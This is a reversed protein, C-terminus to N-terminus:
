LAAAEPPKRENALRTLRLLDEAMDFHGLALAKQALASLAAEEDPESEESEALFFELDHGTAKAIAAVMEARPMHKGREYRSIDSAAPTLAGNTVRRAAFALDDQSMGKALRATRIKLGIQFARRQTTKTM